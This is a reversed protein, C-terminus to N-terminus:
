SSTSQGAAGDLYERIQLLLRKSEFPKSIYGDCGANRVKEEDGKMVSATLAVVVIHQTDVNAKIRRTLELGDLGPLQIDMLVLSPKFTTLMLLAENGDTATRVIYGESQLLVRSLKLNLPSDDIILISEHAM